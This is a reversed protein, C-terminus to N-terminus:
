CPITVAWHRFWKARQEVLYIARNGRHVGIVSIIAHLTIPCLPSAAPDAGVAVDADVQGFGGAQSLTLPVILDARRRQQKIRCAMPNPRNAGGPRPAPLAPRNPTMGAIRERSEPPKARATSRPASGRRRAGGPMPTRAGSKAKRCCPLPSGAIRSERDLVGARWGPVRTPWSPWGIASCTM